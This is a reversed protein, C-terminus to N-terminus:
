DAKSNKLPQFHDVASVEKKSGDDCIQITKEVNETTPTLSFLRLSLM